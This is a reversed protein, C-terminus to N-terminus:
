LLNQIIQKQVIKGNETTASYRILRSVSIDNGEANIYHLIARYIVQEEPAEPNSMILSHDNIEYVSPDNMLFDHDADFEVDNAAIFLINNKFWRKYSSYNSYEYIDIYYYNNEDEEKKFEKIIHTVGEIPNTEITTILDYGLLMNEEINNVSTGRIGTVYKASTGIPLPSDFGVSNKRRAQTIVSENTAM